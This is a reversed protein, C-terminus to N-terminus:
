RDPNGEFTKSSKIKFSEGELEIKESYHKHIKESTAMQYDFVEITYGFEIFSNVINAVLGRRIADPKLMIFSYYKM